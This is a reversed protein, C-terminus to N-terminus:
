PMATVGTVTVVSVLADLKFKLLIASGGKSGNEQGHSKLKPLSVQAHMCIRTRRPAVLAGVYLRSYIYSYSDTAM